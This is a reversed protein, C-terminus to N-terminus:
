LAFGKFGFHEHNIISRKVSRRLCTCIPKGIHLHHVAFSVKTESTSCVKTGTMCHSVNEYKEIRISHWTRSAYGLKVLFERRSSSNDTGNPERTFL